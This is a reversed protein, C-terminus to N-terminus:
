EEDSETRYGDSGSGGEGEETEPEKGKSDISKRGNTDLSRRGNGNTSSSPVQDRVIEVVVQGGGRGSLEPIDRIPTSPAWPIPKRPYSSVLHFGWFREVASNENSNAEVQGEEVSQSRLLQRIAQDVTTSQPFPFALELNGGEGSASLFQVDVFAYVDSVTQAGASFRRVVRKGDPMRIAVRTDGEGEGGAGAFFRDRLWGRRRERERKRREVRQREEEVRREEEERQREVEEEAKRKEEEERIKRLIRERDRRASEEFARDQEERLRRENRRSEEQREKEKEAALRSTKVRELYPTVRPLLTEQIHACLAEPTTSAAGQHRSLISLTSNTDPDRTSSGSLGSSAFGQNRRSPQLAIFAVYPYTTSGLKLSASFAPTDRVDGGWTYINHTTLLSVFTSNTLTTRKFELVDDHEESVLVVCGIRAERNCVELFEDYTGLAFDPLYKRGGSMIDAIDVSGGVGSGSAIGSASFSGGVGNARSTLTSPGAEGEGIEMATTVVGRGAKGICFAGTEEELERIWREPGRNTRGRPGRPRYFNLSLFPIYPIPIRLISLVVRLVSGLLRFPYSLISLLTPSGPPRGNNPRAPGGLLTNQESDDIGDFPQIRSSPPSMMEHASISPISPPLPPPNSAGFVLEAAKQVDWDVSQLVGVAVEDDGANTMDRFRTLAVLQEDTLDDM